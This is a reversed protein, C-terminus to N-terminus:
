SEADSFNLPTTGMSEDITVAKPADDDKRPRAPTIAGIFRSGIKVRTLGPQIGKSSAYFTAEIPGRPRVSGFAAWSSLPYSVSRNEIQMGKEGHLIEGLSPFPSTVESRTDIQQTLQSLGTDRSRSVRIYRNNVYEVSLAAWALKPTLKFKAALDKADAAGIVASWPEDTSGWETFMDEDVDHDPEVGEDWWSRAAVSGNSAEAYLTEGTWALRIAHLSEYDKSAAMPLVDTLIGVLETTPIMLKTKM